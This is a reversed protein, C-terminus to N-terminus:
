RNAIAPRRYHTFTYRPEDRQQVIEWESRDFSPFHSDGGPQVYEAKITSLYMARALPLAQEYVSAGGGCFVQKGYSNAIDIAETLSSATVVDAALDGGSRTLVVAHDTTLDPGFIEYSRRGMIITQGDVTDLFHQYEEPVDWPMGDGSGIVSAPSMAAIIIM